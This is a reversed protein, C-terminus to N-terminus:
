VKVRRLEEAAASDIIWTGRLALQIPIEKPNHPAGLARAVTSAKRKGSVMVLMSGAAAIVPPTITIRWPPPKSGKVVVVRRVREDLAASGPFLSATHGDDGMGLLILDLRQPLIAEYDVAARDREPREAEIRHVQAPAIRLNSFITEYAMRYNSDPHDPPVCREDGFYFEVKQWEVKRSLDSKALLSYASRPTEGGALALTCRGDAVITEHIRNVIWEAAVRSFDQSKDVVIINTQM